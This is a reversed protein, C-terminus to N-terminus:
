DTCLALEAGCLRNPQQPAPLHASPLPSRGGGCAAQRPGLSRPAARQIQPRMCGAQASRCPWTPCWGVVSDGGSLVNFLRTSCTTTISFCNHKAPVYLQNTHRQLAKTPALSVQFASLYSTQSAPIPTLAIVISAQSLHMGGSTCCAQYTHMGGKVTLTMCLSDLCPCYPRLWPKWPLRTVPKSSASRTPWMWLM